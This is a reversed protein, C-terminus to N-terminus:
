RIAIRLFNRGLRKREVNGAQDIGRVWLKYRGPAFYTAFDFHWNSTGRAPLYSTRLCNRPANFSGTAMLFRCRHHGAPRSVSVKVQAVIGAIRARRAGCTFDRDRSTGSLVLHGRSAHVGHRDFKSRPPTHDPCRAQGAAPARPAVNVALSSPPANPLGQSCDGTGVLPPGSSQRLIVPLSTPLQGGTVPDTRETDGSAIMVCGRADVSNTFFDGLRRDQGTAVCTTGAQCLGGAHLSRGAANVVTVRATAPNDAGTINADYLYTQTDAPACDPDAVKNLQYWVVSIKGRDGAAVWPWLVRTSAPAAITMPASWTKGLDHSVALLVRNPLPAAGNQCGTTDAPNRENTDWVLYLNDASDLAIAPWHSFLTSTPITGAPKFAADGRSWTDVGIGNLKGNADHTLMPEVVRDSVRSYYLKGVGTWDGTPLTGSAPIGTLPCTNGGDTSQFVQHGSGSGQDPEQANTGMFVEDKKGGALWPRDGDHCQPTGRDWSFGGDNSSFVADNALDIGTNYIRGGLDQTLDPDSFGANKSPDTSFGTGQYNVFQWTAGNDKSTWMNVQDRYNTEFTPQTTVLGPRYLHTTGEHSTYLLTRHLTDALVLPEGGALGPDVYQPGQFTLPAASASVPAALAVAAALALTISALLTPLRAAPTL